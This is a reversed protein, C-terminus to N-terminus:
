VDVAVAATGVGLGHHALGSVGELHYLPGVAGVYEVQPGAPQQPEVVRRQRDGGGPGFGAPGGSELDEGARLGGPHNVVRRADHLLEVWRSKGRDPM